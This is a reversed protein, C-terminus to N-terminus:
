SQMQDQDQGQGQAQVGLFEEAKQEGSDIQSSFKGGTEQNIEQGVKDLAQDAQEPHESALTKAEQELDDLGM